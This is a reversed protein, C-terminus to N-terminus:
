YPRTPESIHILSLQLVDMGRMEHMDGGASFHRGKGAILVVRIRRDSLCEGLLEGLRWMMKTTIANRKAPRNLWLIAVADRNERLILNKM